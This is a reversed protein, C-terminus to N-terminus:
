VKEPARGSQVVLWGGSSGGGTSEVGVRDRLADTM